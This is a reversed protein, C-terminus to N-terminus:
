YGVAIRKSRKGGTSSSQLQFSSSQLDEHGGLKVSVLTLIVAYVTHMINEMNNM